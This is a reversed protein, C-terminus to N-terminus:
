RAYRSRTAPTITETMEELQWTVKKLKWREITRIRTTSQYATWPLSLTNYGIADDGDNLDL